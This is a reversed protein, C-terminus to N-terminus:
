TNLVAAVPGHGARERRRTQHAIARFVSAEIGFLAGQEALLQVADAGDGRTMAFRVGVARPLQM